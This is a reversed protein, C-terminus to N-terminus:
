GVQAKLLNPPAASAICEKLDSCWSASFRLQTRTLARMLPMLRGGSGPRGDGMRSEHCTAKESVVQLESSSQRFNEREAETIGGEYRCHLGYALVSGM